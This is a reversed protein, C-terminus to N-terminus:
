DEMLCLERVPRFSKRHISLVGYRQLALLHEKTPYGKHKDFLYNPYVRSVRTMIYDRVVKAIISAAAIQTYKQDGKIIAKMKYDMVDPLHPGDVLVLSGKLNLKDIARKMALQTAKLINSADIEQPSAYGIKASFAYKKILRYNQLRVSESLTKSDHFMYETDSPMAVAAALVPGALCGRGVEDVGIILEGGM